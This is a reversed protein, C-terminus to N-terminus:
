NTTSTNVYSEKRKYIRNVRTHCIKLILLAIYKVFVEIYYVKYYEHKNKDYLGKSKLCRKTM